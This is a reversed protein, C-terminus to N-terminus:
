EMKFCRPHRCLIVNFYTIDKGAVLYFGVGLIPLNEFWVAFIYKLSSVAIFIKFLEYYPFPIFFVTTCDRSHDESNYLFMKNNHDCPVVSFFFIILPSLGLVESPEKQFAKM